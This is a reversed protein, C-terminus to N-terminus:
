RAPPTTRRDSPACSPPCSRPLAVTLEQALGSSVTKGLEDLTSRVLVEAESANELGLRRQVQGYGRVRRRTVTPTVTRTATGVDRRAAM